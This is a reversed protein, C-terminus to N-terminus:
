LPYFHYPVWASSFAGYNLWVVEVALLYAIVGLISGTARQGLLPLRSIVAIQLPLLYLSIRDVATSASSVTGLVVLMAVAAVSFNRWIKYDTDNFMLRKGVLFFCGAALVNMAVRVFAGQSNFDSELYNTVFADMRDNLFFQYLALGISVVLAANVMANGRASWAVIPFVV